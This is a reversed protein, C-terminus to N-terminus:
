NLDYKRRTAYQNGILYEMNVTQGAVGDVRWSMGLLLMSSPHQAKALDNWIVTGSVIPPTYDIMQGSGYYPFDIGGIATFGGAYSASITPAVPRFNVSFTSNVSSYNPTRVDTGYIYFSKPAQLHGNPYIFFEATIDTGTTVDLGSTLNLSGTLHNWLRFEWCMRVPNNSLTAHVTSGDQPVDTWADSMSPSVTFALGNYKLGKILDAWAVPVFLITLLLSLLLRAKMIM